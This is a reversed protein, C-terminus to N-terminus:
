APLDLLTLLEKAMLNQAAENANDANQLRQKLALLRDLTRIVAILAFLDQETARDSKVDRDSLRLFSDKQQRIVAIQKELTVNHM